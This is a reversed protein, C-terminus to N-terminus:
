WAGWGRSALEDYNTPPRTAKVVDSAKKATRAINGSAPNQWSTMADKLKELPNNTTYDGGGGNIMNDIASMGTGLLTLWQAGPIATGALSALTGLNGLIGKGGKVYTVAM